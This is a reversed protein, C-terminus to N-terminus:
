DSSIGDVGRSTQAQPPEDHECGMPEIRVLNVFTSLVNIVQM